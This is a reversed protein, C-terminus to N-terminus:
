PLFLSKEEESPLRCVDKRGFIKYRSRAVARYVNDRIFRPLFKTYFLLKYPWNLQRSLMIAADSEVYFVGDEFYIISDMSQFEVPINKAATDGQLSAYKFKSKTGLSMLFSVVANCLNCHGDFFIVKYGSIEEM